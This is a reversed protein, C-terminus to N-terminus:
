TVPACITPAQVFGRRSPRDGNVLVVTGQTRVGHAALNDARQHQMTAGAGCAILLAVGAMVLLGGLWRRRVTGSEERGVSKM